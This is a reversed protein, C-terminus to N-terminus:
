GNLWAMALLARSASLRLAPIECDSLTREIENAVPELLEFTREPEIFAKAPQDFNVYEIDFDAVLSSEDWLSRGIELGQDLSSELTSVPHPQGVRHALEDGAVIYHCTPLHSSDGGLFEGIRDRVNRNRYYNIREQGTM